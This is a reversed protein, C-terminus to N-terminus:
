IVADFAPREPQAAREVTGDIQFTDMGALTNLFEEYLEYAFLDPRM